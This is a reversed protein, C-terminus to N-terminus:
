PAVTEPPSCRPMGPPASCTGPEPLEMRPSHPFGRSTRSFLAPFSSCGFVEALPPGRKRPAVSPPIRYLPRRLFGGGRRSRNFLPATVPDVHRIFRRPVQRHNLRRSESDHRIHRETLTRAPTVRTRVPLQDIHRKKDAPLTAQTRAPSESEPGILQTNSSLRPSSM